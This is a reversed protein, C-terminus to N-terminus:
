CQHLNNNRKLVYTNRLACTQMAQPPRGAAPSIISFPCAIHHQFVAFYYIICCVVHQFSQLNRASGVFSTNWAPTRLAPSMPKQSTAGPSIFCRRTAYRAAPRGCVMMSDSAWTPLMTTKNYRQFSIDQSAPRGCVMMSDSAWHTVNRAQQMLPVPLTRKFQFLVANQHLFARYSGSNSCPRKHQLTWHLQMVSAGCLKLTQRVMLTKVLPGEQSRWSGTPSPLETRRPRCPSKHWVIHRNSATGGCAAVSGSSPCSTVSASTFCRMRAAAAAAPRAPLASAPSCVAQRVVRGQQVVGVCISLCRAVDSCPERKSMIM